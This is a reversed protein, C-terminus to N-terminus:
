KAALQKSVTLKANGEEFRLSHTLTGSAGVIKIGHLAEVTSIVGKELLALLTVEENAAFLPTLRAMNVTVPREARSKFGKLKPLRQVMPTSGGIFTRPVNSNAGTRAKQGKVGRGAFTGHGSGNGRGLRRSKPRAHTTSIDHLRM